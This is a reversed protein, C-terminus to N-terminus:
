NKPYFAEKAIVTKKPYLKNLTNPLVFYTRNKCSNIVKNKTSFIVQIEFRGDSEIYKGVFYILTGLEYRLSVANECEANKTEQTQRETNQKKNM